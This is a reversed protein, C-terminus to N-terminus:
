RERPQPDRCGALPNMTGHVLEPQRLIQSVGPRGHTLQSSIVIACRDEMPYRGYVWDYGTRPSRQLGHDALIAIVARVGHVEEGGVLASARAVARGFPTRWGPHERFSMDM